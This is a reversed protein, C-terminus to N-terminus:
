GSITNNQAGLQKLFEVVANWESQYLEKGDAGHMLSAIGLALEDEM